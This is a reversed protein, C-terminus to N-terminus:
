GRRSRGRSVHRPLPAACFAATRSPPRSTSGDPPNPPILDATDPDINYLYAHHHHQHHYRHHHDAHHAPMQQIGPPICRVPQVDTQPPAESGTGRGAGQGDEGAGVGRAALFVCPHSPHTCLTM